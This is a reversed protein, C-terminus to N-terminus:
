YTSHINRKKNQIKRSEHKRTSFDIKVLGSETTKGGSKHKGVRM